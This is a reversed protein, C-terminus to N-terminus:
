LTLIISRSHLTRRGCFGLNTVTHTLYNTCSPIENKLVCPLTRFTRSIRGCAEPSSFYIRTFAVDDQRLSCKGQKEQTHTYTHTGMHM